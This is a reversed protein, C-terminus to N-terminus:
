KLYKKIADLLNTPNDAHVWHGANAINQITANPYHEKINIWDTDSIYNSNAGKIFLVPKLNPFSPYIDILINEYNKYISNM